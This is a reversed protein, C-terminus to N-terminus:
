PRGAHAEAPVPHRRGFGGPQVFSAGGLRAQPPVQRMFVGEALTGLMRRVEFVAFGAAAAAAAAFGAGDPVAPSAADAVALAANAALFAACVSFAERYREFYLLLVVGLQFLAQFFAGALMWRMLAAGDSGLGLLGLLPEALLVLVASLGGQLMLVQRLGARASDSLGEAAAAIAAFPRHQGVAGFFARYREFFDTEVRLFFVALAPVTTVQAIFFATEYEAAVRMWPAAVLGASPSFRFVLKDAWAGLYYVAGMAALWPHLRFYEVFSFDATGEWRFEAFVASALVALTVGQGALFGAMAGAQGWRAGFLAALVLGAAGGALFAGIAWHYARLVGIFVMAVWVGSVAVLAGHAALRFGAPAGLTGWLAAGVCTQAALVAALLGVFAPAHRSADGAYLRDALYRTVVFQPVGTVFLSAPFVYMLAGHFLRMDGPVLAATGALSVASILWPGAAIVASYAYGQLAGFYTGEEVYRRLKFGIGAM